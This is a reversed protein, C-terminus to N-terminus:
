RERDERILPTPDPVEPLSKVFAELRDRNERMRRRRDRDNEHETLVSIAYNNLSMCKDQASSKLKDHLEPPLGKITLAAM